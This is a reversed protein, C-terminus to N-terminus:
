RTVGQLRDVTAEGAEPDLGAQKVVWLRQWEQAAANTSHMVEETALAEYYRSILKITRPGIRQAVQQRPADSVRPNTSQTPDKEWAKWPESKFLGNLAEYQTKGATLRDLLGSLDVSGKAGAPKWRMQHTFLPHDSIPGPSPKALYQNFEVELERTM